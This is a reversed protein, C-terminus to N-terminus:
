AWLEAAYLDALCNAIEGFVIRGPVPLARGRSRDRLHFKTSPDACRQLFGVGFGPHDLHSFAIAVRPSKYTGVSCSVLFIYNINKYHETM